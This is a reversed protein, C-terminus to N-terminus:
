GIAWVAPVDIVAVHVDPRDRGASTDRDVDILPAPLAAKVGRGVMAPVGFARCLRELLRPGIKFGDPFSVKRLASFGIKFFISVLLGPRRPLIGHV